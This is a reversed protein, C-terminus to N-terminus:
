DGNHMAENYAEIAPDSGSDIMDLDIPARRIGLTQLLRRQVAV